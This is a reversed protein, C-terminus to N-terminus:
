QKPPNDLLSAEAKGAPGFGISFSSSETLSLRYNADTLIGSIDLREGDSEAYAYGIVRREGDVYDVIDFRKSESKM